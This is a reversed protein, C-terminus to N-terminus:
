AQAMALAMDQDEIYVQEVEGYPVDFALGYDERGLQLRGNVLTVHDMNTFFWTKHAGTDYRRETFVVTVRYRARPLSASEPVTTQRPSSVPSGLRTEDEVGAPKNREDAAEISRM